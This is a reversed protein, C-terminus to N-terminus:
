KINEAKAASLTKGNKREEVVGWLAGLLACLLYLGGRKWDLKYASFAMPILMFILYLWKCPFRKEGLKLNLARFKWLAWAASATFWFGWTAVPDLAGPALRWVALAPGLMFILLFAAVAYPSSAKEELPRLVLFILFFTIIVWFGAPFQTYVGVSEPFVFVGTLLTWFKKPLDANIQALFNTAFESQFFALLFFGIYLATLTQSIPGVEIKPVGYTQKDEGYDIM